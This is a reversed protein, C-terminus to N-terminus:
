PWQPEFARRSTLSHQGHFARAATGRHLLLGEITV